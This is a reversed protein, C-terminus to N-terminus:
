QKYMVMQSIIYIIYISLFFLFIAVLIRLRYYEPLKLLSKRLIIVTEQSSRITTNKTDYINPIYEFSLECQFRSIGFKEEISKKIEDYKIFSQKSLVFKFSPYNTELDKIKKIEVIYISDDITHKLYREVLSRDKSVNVFDTDIIDTELQPSFTFSQAM